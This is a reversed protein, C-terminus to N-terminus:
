GRSGKLLACSDDIEPKPRGFSLGHRRGTGPGTGSTGEPHKWAENQIGLHGGINPDPFWGGGGLGALFPVNKERQGM